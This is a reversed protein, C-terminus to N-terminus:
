EHAASGVMAKAAQLLEILADLDAVPVPLGIKTGTYLGTSTLREYHRIDVISCADNVIVRTEVKIGTNLKGILSM